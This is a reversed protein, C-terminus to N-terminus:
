YNMLHPNAIRIEDIKATTKVNNGDIATASVDRLFIEKWGCTRPRFQRLDSVRAM